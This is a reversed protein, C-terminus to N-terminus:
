AVDSRTTAVAAVAGTSADVVEVRAMGHHVDARAVAPGTRIARLFRVHISEIRRAGPDGSLAAEEVAVTLMGGDIAKSGNHVVPAAPLTAVGPETRACGIREALPVALRGQVRGFRELVADAVAAAVSARLSTTGPTWMTPHVAFTGHMEDGVSAIVLGLEVLASERGAGDVIQGCGPETGRQPVRDGLRRHEVAAGAGGAPRAHCEATRTVVRRHRGADEHAGGNSSRWRASTSRVPM